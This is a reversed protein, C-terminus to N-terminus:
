SWEGHLFWGSSNLEQFVWLSRGCRTEIRYYDREQAAEGSWWPASIREPGLADAVVYYQSSFM